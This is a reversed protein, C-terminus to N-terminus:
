ALHIRRKQSVFIKTFFHNQKHNFEMPQIGFKTLSFIVTARYCIVQENFDKNEKFFMGLYKIGKVVKLFIRDLTAKINKDDYFNFKANLIFCKNM